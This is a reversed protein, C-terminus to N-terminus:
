HFSQVFDPKVAYGKIFEAESANRYQKSKCFYTSCNYRYTGDVRQAPYGEPTCSSFRQLARTWNTARGLGCLALWFTLLYGTINEMEMYVFKM